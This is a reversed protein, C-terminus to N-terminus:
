LYKDVYKGGDTHNKPRYNVRIRVEPYKVMKIEIYSPEVRIDAWTSVDWEMEFTGPTWNINIYGPEWNVEPTPLSAINLDAQGKDTSQAALEVIPKGGKELRMMATGDASIEGISEIGKQLSDEFYQRAAQLVPGICLAKYMQTRDLHMMPLQRDMHFQAIDRRLRFQPRQTTIEVRAKYTRIEIEADQRTIELQYDM